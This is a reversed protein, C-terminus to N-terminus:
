ARALASWAATGQRTCVAKRIAEDSHIADVPPMKSVSDSALAASGAGGGSAGAVGAGLVATGPPHVGASLEDLVDYRVIRPVPVIRGVRGYTLAKKYDRERKKDYCRARWNLEAGVPVASGSSIRSYVLRWVKDSLCIPLLRKCCYGLRTVDSHHLMTAINALLQPPLSTLACDTAPVTAKDASHADAPLPADSVHLCAMLKTPDEAAMVVFEQIPFWRLLQPTRATRHTVHAALESFPFARILECWWGYLSMLHSMCSRRAQVNMLMWMADVVILKRLQVSLSPNESFRECLADLERRLRSLLAEM